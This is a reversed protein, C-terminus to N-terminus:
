SVYNNLQKFFLEHKSQFGVYFISENKEDKNKFHFNLNLNNALSFSSISLPRDNFIM